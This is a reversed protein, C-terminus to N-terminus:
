SYPQSAAGFLTSQLAHWWSSSMQALIQIILGSHSTLFFVTWSLSVVPCLCQPLTLLPTISEQSQHPYVPRSKTMSQISPQHLFFYQYQSWPSRGQIVLHINSGASLYLVCSVVAPKLFPLYPNWKLSKNFRYRSCHRACIHVWYITNRFTQILHGYFSELTRSGHNDYVRLVSFVNGLHAFKTLM